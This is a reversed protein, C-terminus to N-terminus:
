RQASGQSEGPDPGLGHEVICDDALNCLYEVEGVLRHRLGLEDFLRHLERMRTIGLDTFKVRYRAMGEPNDKVWTSSIWGKKSLRTFLAERLVKNEM